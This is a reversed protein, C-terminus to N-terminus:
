EVYVVAITKEDCQAVLEKANIAMRDKLLNPKVIKPEVDFYRFLKEWAAQFSCCKNSLPYKVITLIALL